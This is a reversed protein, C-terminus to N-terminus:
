VAILLNISYRLKLSTNDTEGKNFGNAPKMAHAKGKKSSTITINSKIGAKHM